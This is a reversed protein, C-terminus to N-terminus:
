ATHDQWRTPKLEATDFVEAVPSGPYGTLMGMRHELGGKVILENGTFIGVGEELLFRPDM